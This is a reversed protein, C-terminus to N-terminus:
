TFTQTSTHHLNSVGNDDSPPEKDSDVDMHGKEKPGHCMPAKKPQEKIDNERKWKKAMSLKCMDRCKQCYKTGYDPPLMVKCKSHTCQKKSWPAFDDDTHAQMEILSQSCIGVFYTVTRKNIIHCKLARSM